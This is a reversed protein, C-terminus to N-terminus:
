IMYKQKFSQIFIEYSKLQKLLSNYHLEYYKKTDKTINELRILRSINQQLWVSQKFCRACKKSVFLMSRLTKLDLHKCIAEILLLDFSEFVSM